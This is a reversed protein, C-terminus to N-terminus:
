GKSDMGMYNKVIGEFRKLCESSCIFIGSKDISHTKLNCMACRGRLESVYLDSKDRGTM